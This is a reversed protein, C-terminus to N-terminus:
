AAAGGAPPSEQPAAPPPSPVANAPPHMAALKNGQAELIDLMRSLNGNTQQQVAQVTAQTSANQASVLAALVLMAPGTAVGAIIAVDVRFAAMISVAIIDMGALAVAPWANRPNM